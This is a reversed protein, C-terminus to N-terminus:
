PFCSGAGKIKRELLQKRNPIGKVTYAHSTFCVRLYHFFAQHFMTDGEVTIEIRNDIYIEHMELFLYIIFSSM